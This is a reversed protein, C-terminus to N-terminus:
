IHFKMFHFHSFSWVPTAQKSTNGSSLRKLRLLVDLTDMTLTTMESDFRSCEEQFTVVRAVAGSYWWFLVGTQLLFTPFM